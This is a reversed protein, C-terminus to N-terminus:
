KSKHMNAHNQMETVDNLLENCLMCQYKDDNQKKTYHQTIQHTRLTGMAQMVSGCFECPLKRNRTHTNMHNNMGSKTKSSFGCESCLYNRDDFHTLFHIRLSQKSHFTKQCYDCICLEFKHKTLSGMKKKVEERPHQAINLFFM